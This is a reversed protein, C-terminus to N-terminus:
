YLLNSSLGEGNACILKIFLETVFCIIRFLVILFLTNFYLIARAPTVWHISDQGTFQFAAPEIGLWPVHRPQLGPGWNPSHSLCSILTDRVCWHKEGEREGERGRERFIFLYFRRFIYLISKNKLSKNLIIKLFNPIM